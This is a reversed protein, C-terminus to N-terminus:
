KLKARIKFDVMHVFIYIYIRVLIFIHMIYACIYMLQYFVNSMMIIYM